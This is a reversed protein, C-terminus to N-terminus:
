QRGGLATSHWLETSDRLDVESRHSAVRRYLLAYSKRARMIVGNVYKLTSHVDSLRSARCNWAITFANSM